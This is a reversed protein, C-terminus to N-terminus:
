GQQRRRTAKRLTRKERVSLSEMGGDAIIALIRDIEAREAQERKIRRQALRAQREGVEDDSEEGFGGLEGGVFEAAVLRKRETWCVLACFIAVGLVLTADAVLAFVGLLGATVLGVVAALERSARRGMRRWLLAELAWGGDLPYTPLLINFALVALNVGHLLWLGVLWWSGLEFLVTGMLRPNFLIIEPKGVAWLAASTIPVLAVNVTPGGLTIILHDRWLDRPHPAELGGLPWMVIEDADGGVLRCAVCHGFEHALVVVFLLGMAIATYAPGFFDQNISWLMQAVAYVLFLIHLRVRVGGIAGLPIAWTLPHEGDGFIRGLATRFGGSDGAWDRSPTDHHRKMPTM